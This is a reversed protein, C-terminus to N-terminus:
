QRYYGFSDTYLGTRRSRRRSRRPAPLRRVTLQDRVAARGASWLAYHWWLRPVSINMVSAARCGREAQIWMSVRPM